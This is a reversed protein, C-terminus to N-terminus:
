TTALAPRKSPTEEQAEFRRLFDMVLENFVAAQEISVVHGCYRVVELRVKKHLAAYREAQRLFLHDQAGMVLLQPIHSPTHFIHKLTQNLGAYLATWKRFEETSLVKSERLFVERSKKHNKRPLMITASLKYFARYGIVKALALSTGALVKLRTSLRVIAGANIVSVVRNPQQDRMTLVIISGLSVGVLHLKQVGLHDAVKWIEAGIQGFSYHNAIEAREAMKGHGPLDILIINCYRGLEPVQRKWTATSGGAGHVLLLWPAGPSCRHVEHYLVPHHTKMDSSVVLQM